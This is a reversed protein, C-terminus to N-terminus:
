EAMARLQKRVWDPSNEDLDPAEQMPSGSSGGQLPSMKQSQPKDEIPNATAKAAFPNLGKFARSALAEVHFESLSQTAAIKDLGSKASTDDIIKFFQEQQEPTLTDPDFSLYQGITQLMQGNHQRIALEDSKQKEFAIQRDADAKDRAELRDLIPKLRTEIAEASGQRVSWDQHALFAELYAPDNTEVGPPPFVPEPDVVPQQAQAPQSKGVGALAAAIAQDEPLGSVLATAYLKGFASKDMAQLYPLNADVYGKATALAREKEQYKQQLIGMGEIEKWPRIKGDRPDEIMTDPTMKIPAPKDEEKKPEEKKEEAVTAGSAAETTQKGKLFDSLNESSIITTDKDIHLKPEPTNQTEEDVQVATLENFPDGEDGIGRLSVQGKELTQESM